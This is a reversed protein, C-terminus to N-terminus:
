PKTQQLAPDPILTAVPVPAYSAMPIPTSAAQPLAAQQASYARTAAGCQNILAAAATNTANYSRAILGDVAAAFLQTVAPPPGADPAGCQRMAQRAIALNGTAYAQDTDAPNAISYFPPQPILVPYLSPQPLPAAATDRLVSEASTQAGALDGSNYQQVATTYAPLARRAAAPDSAAARSIGLLAAFVASSAAGGAVPPPPISLAPAQSVGLTVAAALLAASVPVLKM